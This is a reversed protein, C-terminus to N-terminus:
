MISSRIAEAPKRDATHARPKSRQGQRPDQVGGGPAAQSGRARETELAYRRTHSNSFCFMFILCFVFLFFLVFYSFHMSWREIGQDHLVDAVYDHNEGFKKVRIAKAV